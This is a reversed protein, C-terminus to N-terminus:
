EFGAAERLSRTAPGSLMEALRRALDPEEASSGVAVTYVTSLEFGSPLPGVLVVGPTYRIETIQTCGVLGARPRALLSECQRRATRFPISGRRSPTM